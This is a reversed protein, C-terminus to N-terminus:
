NKPVAHAKEDLIKIENAINNRAIEEFDKRIVESYFVVDKTLFSELVKKRGSCYDVESYESYEQRIQRSYESYRDPSAGLILLDLDLFLAMANRAETDVLDEPIKHSKTALVFSGIEAIVPGSVFPSLSTKMFSVSEEENDKNMPFYIIDHYLISMYVIFKYKEGPIHEQYNTYNQIMEYIHLLTHYSRQPEQYHAAIDDIVGLFAIGDFGSTFVDTGGSKFHRIAQFVHDRLFNKSGRLM